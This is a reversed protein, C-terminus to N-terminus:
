WKPRLSDVNIPAVDGEKYIFSGRKMTLHVLNTGLNEQLERFDPINLIVLDAAKGMELSGTRQACGLAHAGNVTAATIAEAASLHFERCALAIVAQMSLTHKGEGNFDSGLAVPIGAAILERAAVPGCGGNGTGPLLTAICAAGALTRIEEAGLAEAHDVSLLNHRGSMEVASRGPGPGCHVKCALGANVAEQLLRDTAPHAGPGETCVDAIDALQRRAIKPFLRRWFTEIDEEPAPLRLLVTRVVDIPENRLMTVARLVKTEAREDEGFGTKAEVTTTGHRAMTSLCDRIRSALRKASTTHVARAAFRMDGAEVGPPPCLLHTHSDVFGPM